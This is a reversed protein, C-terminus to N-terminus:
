GYYLMRYKIKNALLYNTVIIDVIVQLVLLFLM